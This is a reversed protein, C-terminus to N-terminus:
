HGTNTGPQWEMLFYVGTDGTKHFGLRQYLRMAPNNREVHIRVPKEAAAAEELLNQMLQGGIGKGRHQPLLAIDVIRHEDDRRDLYVRGIPDGALSVINFEADGFHKQYETHQANFQMRLFNDKEEDSWPVIAMEDARTSAYLQYLFDLDDDTIPRLTIADTM